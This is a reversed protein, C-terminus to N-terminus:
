IVFNDYKGRSRPSLTLTEMPIFNKGYIEDINNDRNIKKDPYLYFVFYRENIYRTNIDELLLPFIYLMDDVQFYIYFISLYFVDYYRKGIIGVNTIVPKDSEKQSNLLVWKKLEDEMFEVIDSILKEEEEGGGRYRSCSWEMDNCDAYYQPDPKNNNSYLPVKYEEPVKKIYNKYEELAKNYDEGLLFYVLFLHSGKKCLFYPLFFDTLNETESIKEEHIKKFIESTDHLNIKFEKFRFGLNQHNIVGFNKM